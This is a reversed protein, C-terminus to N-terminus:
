WGLSSVFNTCFCQTHTIPNPSVAAFSLPHARKLFVEVFTGTVIATHFPSAHSNKAEGPSHWEIVLTLPLAFFTFNISKQVERPEIGLTKAAHALVSPYVNHDLSTSRTVLCFKQHSLKSIAKVAQWNKKSSPFLNQKCPMQLSFTSDSYQHEDPKGTSTPPESTATSDYKITENLHLWCAM